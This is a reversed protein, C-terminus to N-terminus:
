NSIDGLDFYMLRTRQNEDESSLFTFDNKLYFSTAQVYADVTLRCGSKM